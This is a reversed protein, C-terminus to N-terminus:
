PKFIPNCTGRRVFVIKGSSQPIQMSKTQCLRFLIMFASSQFNRPAKFIMVTRIVADPAAKRNELFATVKILTGLHNRQRLRRLAGEQQFITFIEISTKSTMCYHRGRNSMFARRPKISNPKLSEQVKHSTEVKNRGQNTRGTQLKSFDILFSQFDKNKFLTRDDIIPVQQVKRTLIPSRTRMLM